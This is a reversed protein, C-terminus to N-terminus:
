KLFRKVAFIEHHCQDCFGEESATGEGEERSGDEKESCSQYETESSDTNNTMKFSGISQIHACTFITSDIVDCGNLHFVTCM